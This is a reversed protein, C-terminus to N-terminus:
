KLKGSFSYVILTKLINILCVFDNFYFPPTVVDVSLETRSRSLFSKESVVIDMGARRKM